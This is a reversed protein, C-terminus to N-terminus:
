IEIRLSEHKKEIEDHLERSKKLVKEKEVLLLKQKSKKISKLEFKAKELDSKKTSSRLCRPM